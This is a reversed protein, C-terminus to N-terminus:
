TGTSPENTSPLGKPDYALREMARVTEQTKWAKGLANYMWPIHIGAENTCRDSHRDGGIAATATLNRFFADLRAVAEDPGGMAAALGAPTAHPVM